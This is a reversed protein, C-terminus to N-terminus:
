NLYKIKKPTYSMAILGLSVFLLALHNIFFMQGESSGYWPMGELFQYKVILLVYSSLAGLCFLRLSKQGCRELLTSIMPIQFIKSEPRTYYAILVVTSMLGIIRLIGCYEPRWYRYMGAQDRHWYWLVALYILISQFFPILPKLHSILQSERDKTWVGTLVGLIFIFQYALPHHWVAFFQFPDPLHKFDPLYQAYLYILFSVTVLLGSRRQALYILIPTIPLFFLYLLMVGFFAPMRKLILFEGLSQMPQDIFAQLGFHSQNNPILNPSIAQSAKLLIVGCIITILIGLMIQYCRKLVKQFSLKWQDQHMMQHYAMATACGSIWVFVDGFNFFFPPIIQYSTSIEKLHSHNIMIAFLAFGRIIDYRKDRAQKTEISQIAQSNLNIEQKSTMTM